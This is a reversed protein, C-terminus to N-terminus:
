EPEAICATGVRRFGLREYIRAVDEDDASLFVTTVGRRRLEQVVASTVASGLGRRRFAPVTAVGTIEAVDRVPQASGVAVIQGDLRAATLLTIGKAIRRRHNDVPLSQPREVEARVADLGAEGRATGAHAFGVTAVARTLLLDDDPADPGVVAVEVGEPPLTPRFEDLVLLPHDKVVLGSQEAAARLDPTVEAVWEFSEPVGVARQRERMRRVDAVTVATTGLSPRAYYSWGGQEGVFLTLPGVEEARAAVRPVEDYYRELRQLLDRMSM